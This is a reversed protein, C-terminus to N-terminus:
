RGSVVFRGVLLPRGTRSELVYHYAGEPLAACDIQLTTEEVDDVRRVEAGREDLLRLRASGGPSSDFVIEVSGRVPNPAVRSAVGPFLPTSVGAVSEVVVDDLSLYCCNGNESNCFGGNSSLFVIAISDPANESGVGLDISFTSWADAEVFPWMGDVVTDASASVDNWRTALVRVFGSDVASSDGGRNEGPVYRYVGRLRAPVTGVPRRLNILDHANVSFVPWEGAALIGTSYYYWNWVGIASPHEADGIRGAGFQQVTWGAPMLISSRQAWQEFDGNVLQALAAGSITAVLVLAAVALSCVTKM